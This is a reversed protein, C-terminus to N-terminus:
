LVVQDGTRAPWRYIEQEEAPQEASKEADGTESSAERGYRMALETFSNAGAYYGLFHSMVSGFLYAAGGVFAGKDVTLTVCHGRMFGRWAEAGAHRAIREVEVGVIGNIQTQVRREHTGSYLLLEEKLAALAGPAEFFSLQNVSLHSILRWLDTGVEPAPIQATPRTISLIPGPTAVDSSLVQNIPVTEALDRNTCLTHVFAVKSGPQKPNFGSDHFSLFLDTGTMDSRRSPVRRTMWTVSREDVASTTHDYSFFPAVPVAERTSASELTVQRVTHIETSRELRQDPCIHYETQTQDIRVPESVRQFLNIVPTTGLHFVEREMGPALNTGLDLRFVIDAWSGGLADKHAALGDLDFFLFKQPYVFYEQVLRHADHATDPHPLLAEEPKFGVASRGATGLRRLGANSARDELRPAPDTPSAPHVLMIDRASMVAEFLSSATVFPGIVGIRLPGRLADAVPSGDVTRLRLRLYRADQSATGPLPLQAAKPQDAAEITLPSLPVDWVTRFRATAGKDTEAFVQTGRPITDTARRALEKRTTFQAIGISPIPACLHPYLTALLAHALRPLQQDINRQVRATLFAFAEILREVHPDASDQGDIDLAGAVSPFDRAFESGEERVYRLERLFYDLQSAKADDM